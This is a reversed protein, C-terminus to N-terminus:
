QFKIPGAVGLPNGSVSWGLTTSADFPSLLWGSRTTPLPLGSRCNSSGDPNPGPQNGPLILGITEVSQIVPTVTSTISTGSGSPVYLLNSQGSYIVVRAAMVFGGVPANADSLYADGSCTTGTWEIQTSGLGVPFKGSFDLLVFYGNRYVLAANPLFPSSAFLVQSSSLGLLTGLVNNNADLVSIAGPGPPGAIM